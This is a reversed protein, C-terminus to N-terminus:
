LHSFCGCKKCQMYAKGGERVSTDTLPLLEFEGNSPKGVSTEDCGCDCHNGGLRYPNQKDNEHAVFMNETFPKGNGGSMQHVINAHSAIEKANLEKGNKFIKM